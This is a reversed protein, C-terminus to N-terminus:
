VVLGAFYFPYSADFVGDFVAYNEVVFLEEGVDGCHDGFLLFRYLPGYGKLTNGPGVLGFLAARPWYRCGPLVLPGCHEGCPGYHGGCVWGQRVVSHQLRLSVPVWHGNLFVFRGSRLFLAVSRMSIRVMACAASTEM